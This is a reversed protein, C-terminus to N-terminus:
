LMKYWAVVIPLFSIEDVFILTTKGTTEERVALQMFMDVLSSYPADVGGFMEEINRGYNILTGGAIKALEDHMPYGLEDSIVVRDHDVSM